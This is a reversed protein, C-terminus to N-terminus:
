FGFGEEKLTKLVDLLIEANVYFQNPKDESWSINEGFKSKLLAQYNKNEM